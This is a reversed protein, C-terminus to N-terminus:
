YSEEVSPLKVPFSKTMANVNRKLWVVAFLYSECGAIGCKENREGGVGDDDVDLEFLQV